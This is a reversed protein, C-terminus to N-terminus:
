IVLSKGAGVRDAMVGYKTLLQTTQWDSKLNARAEVSKAAALLTLQHPRLATSIWSPQEAQPSTPGLQTRVSEQIYDRLERRYDSM